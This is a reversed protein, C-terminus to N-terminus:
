AFAAKVEDSFGAHVDPSRLATVLPIHGRKKTALGAPATVNWVGDNPLRWFPQEPHDSRRPPGFERLLATLELETELFTVEPLGRQWRGLAYLILLPKHPARQDGKKWISLDDFEQLVSM